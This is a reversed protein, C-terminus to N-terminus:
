AKLAGGARRQITRLYALLGAGVLGLSVSNALWFGPAGQLSAPTLGLTDFGLLYGGGLGVGWLTVAYIVTPVVAVKYARLVFATTVQLSDFLQYFAIFLFLPLAAGIITPDPTYARIIHARAFWVVIGILVSLAISLRIGAYGIKKAAKWQNAGIAQAVLTSTASAISLPLMYLVTGVNATIQHGAVPVAGLRAIFVAMLTFATVEIFYSLGIPIGLRLLTRLIKWSPAVFGSGFLKLPRYAPLKAVLLWAVAMMLWAILTTAIACGPGGFAPLGLGGFILLANLPLKLLLGCLQIAMVMKPRSMATNLAAYVRFALTAPLALAEIRLYLTAKEVLDPSAKAFSLFFPSFALVLGGVISLLLALWLGQKVENGIDGHRGAGFLQGITPQLAQLVGSLGVFVSVYISVGLALAALDLASFRAVMVTDIVGNAILALQGVLLPWALRAIRGVHIRSSVAPTDSNM